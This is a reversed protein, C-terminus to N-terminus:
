LKTLWAIAEMENQIRKGLDGRAVTVSIGEPYPKVWILGRHHGEEIVVLSHVREAYPAIRTWIEGRQPRRSEREVIQEAM